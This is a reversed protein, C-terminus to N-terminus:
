EGLWELEEATPPQIATPEPEHQATGLPERARLLEALGAVTPRQFLDALELALGQQRRLASVLRSAKLSHGGLAFFDGDIGVADLGLTEAFAAALTQELPDRPQAAPTNPATEPAPLAKRDLKGNPTLPLSALRIYASPALQEPLTDRLRQRLHAPDLPADSVLYAVLRRGDPPDDRAVVAAQRVEPLAVLAAEIEGPEIRFGRIKVQQDARGLIELVGDDRWRALDGTRYLRGGPPDAWPDPLFKEASLGPRRWYGLAVGAGGLYLEGVAGLPLPQLRHDLIHARTNAIPTGVAETATRERPSLRCATSWVTTETPGYLNWVESGRELLGQALDGALAEGGCLIKLGPQLGPQGTWGGDLLLRWLAPTAQMVTAQDLLAGLREPDTLEERSALYLRAGRLLPLYLELAAIDFSLTTVALLTDTEDLGPAQAMSDLFNNLSAHSVLVGKPRGTSGSTYILYAPHEPRPGSGAPLPGGPELDDLWLAQAAHPPLADRVAAETVLVEAGSDELMYALRSPPYSPDLPLYAGGAKLIGLLGVLLRPGRELCLGVLRNPGVGMARLRWALGNALADLEQYGLRGDNWLLATAEGRCLAQAALRAPLTATPLPTALPNFAALRQREAAPLLELRDLPTDPDALVGHVLTSFQEGLRRIRAERFLDTNYEISLVLGAPTDKCCFTLDFKSTEPHEFVPRVTLGKLGLGADAQNQLILLVDFLPSRSLDRPPRLAELLRDFPYHQHDYAELATTRVQNLLATFSAQGDLRDRLALLNLFCGIQGQLDPHDRGACPSGVTIDRQGCHRYLLTKVLALLVMFLSAKHGRGLAALAASPAPDLTWSLERGRFTQIPPRPFDTALDLVPLEGGLKALWYDRSPGEDRGHRWAAYDRYQIALPPLPDAEGRRFARYLQGLEQQLLAISVGDCVSHHVTLLLAHSRPGLALLRVRLLPGRALDFPHRSEERALTRARAVPDPEASLDMVELGPDPPPQIVQRPEGDLDTFLTRLSEHRRILANIAAALAPRDLDGDLHQHLPVNYAAADQELQALLWLRRQAPSLPYHPQEPQRPIRKDLWALLEAKHRRLEELLEPSLAGKPARYRLRGEESWLHIGLGALRQLLENM